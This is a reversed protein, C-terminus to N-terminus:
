FQYGLKLMIRTNDIDVESGNTTKMDSLLTQYRAEAGIVVQDIHYSLSAGAQLTVSSDDLNGGDASIYGFGPGFGFDLNEAIEIQYHPNLEFTSIELGNEDYRAFSIQQRIVGEPAKLLPCNIALELGTLSGNKADGPNINGTILSLQPAFQYDDSVVPFFEWDAAQASQLSLALTAALMISTKIPKM